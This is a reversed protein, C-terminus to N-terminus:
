ELSSLPTNEDAVLGLSLLCLLLHATFAQLSARGLLSLARGPLSLVRGMLSLARIRLWGLAPLVVRAFLLALAAFNVLRLPGLHWKGLWREPAVDFSLGGIRHRLCCFVIAVLFAPAALWDSAVFRALGDGARASWGNALPRAVGAWLGGLWLLQWA